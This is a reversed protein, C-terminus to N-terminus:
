NCGGMYDPSCNQQSNYYEAEAKLDNCEKKLMRYFKHEKPLGCAYYLVKKELAQEEKVERDIIGEITFYPKYIFFYVLLLGITIIFIIVWRNNLLKDM